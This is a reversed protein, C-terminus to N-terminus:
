DLDIRWRLLRTPSAVLDRTSRFSFFFGDQAARSARSFTFGSPGGGVVDVAFLEQLPGDPAKSMLLVQPQPMTARKAETTVIIASGIDVLCRVPNGVFGADRPQLPETRPSRFMRSGAPVGGESATTKAFKWGGLWDDAGWILEDETLVLDTFRQVSQKERAKNEHLRVDPDPNTVETWTLGDDASRWVRCETSKDGSSLWWQGPVFPDALLTHFHRIAEGPASFVKAWTVGDDTSRYVAPDIALHEQGPRYKEKNSPYEAWILTGGAEGAARSGHWHHRGPQATDVLRWEADFRYLAGGKGHPGAFDDPAAVQLLHHGTATTLCHVFDVGPAEPLPVHEWSWGFDSSVLVGGEGTAVVTETPLHHEAFGYSRCEFPVAPVELELDVRHFGFAPDVEVTHRERFVPTLRQGPGPAARRPQAEGGAAVLEYLRLDEQNHELIARAAPSGALAEHRSTRAPAPPIGDDDWGWTEAILLSGDHLADTTVVAGYWRQMARRAAAFDPEGGVRRCCLDSFLEPRQELGARFFGELDRDRALDHHTARENERSFEYLSAIRHVPHRITAFACLPRQSPHEPAFDTFGAYVAYGNLTDREHRKWPVFPTVRRQEYVAEAPMHRRVWRLLVRSGTRPILFFGLMGRHARRLHVPNVWVGETV